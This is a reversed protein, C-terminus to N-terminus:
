ELFARPCKKIPSLNDILVNGKHSFRADSYHAELLIYNMPNKVYFQVEYTEWNAHKIFGSEFLLQDKACKHYGGWIRIKVPLNYSAYTRSHALDIKFTYCEKAQLTTKLRQGISEWTGDDRTILGVFSEGDSAENYVGWPGPLIDPTTGPECPLWGAPSTADQPQGEFSPNHFYIIQAENSAAAVLITLFFCAIRM